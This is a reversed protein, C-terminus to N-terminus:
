AVVTSVSVEGDEGSRRNKIVSANGNRENEEVTKVARRKKVIHRESTLDVTRKHSVAFAFPKGTREVKRPAFLSFSLSLSTRICWGVSSIFCKPRHFPM